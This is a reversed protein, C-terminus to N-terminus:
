SLPSMHWTSREKEFELDKSIMAKEHHLKQMELEHRMSKLELELAATAKNHEITKLLLAM